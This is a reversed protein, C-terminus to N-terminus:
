RLEPSAVQPAQVGSHAVQARGLISILLFFFDGFLPESRLSAGPGSIAINIRLPNKTLSRRDRAFPFM